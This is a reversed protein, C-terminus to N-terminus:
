SVTKEIQKMKAKAKGLEKISKQIM